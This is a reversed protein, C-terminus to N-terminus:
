AADWAACLGNVGGGIVALDFRQEALCKTNRDM